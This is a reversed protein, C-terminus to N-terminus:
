PCPPKEKYSNVSPLLSITRSIIIITIIISTLIQFICIIAGFCNKPTLDGYGVTATTVLSYYLAGWFSELSISSKAVNNQFLSNNHYYIVAYWMIVEFYSFLIMILTRQHSNVSYKTPQDRFPDFLIAKIQYTVISFIKFFGIYVVCTSIFKHKIILDSLLLFIISIFFWICVWIENFKVENKISFIKIFLNRMSLSAFFCIIKDCFFVINKEKKNDWGGNPNPVTHISTKKSLINREKFYIERV